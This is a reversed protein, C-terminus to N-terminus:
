SWCDTCHIRPSSAQLLTQLDHDVEVIPAVGIGKFLSKRSNTSNNFETSIPMM